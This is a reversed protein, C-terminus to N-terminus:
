LAAALLLASIAPTAIHPSPRVRRRTVTLWLAIALTAIAVAGCLHTAWRHWLPGLNLRLLYSLAVAAALPIALRRGTFRAAVLAIVVATVYPWPIAIWFRRAQALTVIRALPARAGPRAGLLVPALM